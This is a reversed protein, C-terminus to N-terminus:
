SSRKPRFVKADAYFDCDQDSSWGPVGLVPLPTLRGLLFSHQALDAALQLDIWARKADDSLTFFSDSVYVVLTHATIAKYPRVLKGLLAHGFLWVEADSAFMSRQVIFVDQWRHNCLAAILSQGAANDRVLLVAANEDFITAADRAAGRQKGSGPQAEAKALEVAQLANLCAKTAPFSLWILANLFDHLNDRTPVKGSNGIFAEYATAAPLEAQAVFSIPWDLYNRIGRERAVNNLALRWDGSTTLQQGLARFPRLWPKLWDIIDFFSTSSDFHYSSASTPMQQANYMERLRCGLGIGEAVSQGACSFFATLRNRQHKLYALFVVYLFNEVFRNPKPRFNCGRQADCWILDCKDLM